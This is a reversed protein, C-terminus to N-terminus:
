LREAVTAASVLSGVQQQISGMAENYRDQVVAAKVVASGVEEQNRQRARVQSDIETALVTEVNPRNSRFGSEIRQEQEGAARIMRDNFQDWQHARLAHDGKGRSTFNVISRGKVFEVRAAKRLDQQNTENVIQEIRENGSTSLRQATMTKANLRKTAKSINSHHKNELLSAEVVADGIAPEILDKKDVDATMMPQMAAPAPAQFRGETSLYLLSAGFLTALVGTAAAIDVPELGRRDTM